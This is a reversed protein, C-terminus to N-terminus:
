SVDAARMIDIANRLNHGTLIAMTMGAICSNTAEQQLSELFALKKLDGAPLASKILCAALALLGDKLVNGRNMGTAAMSVPVAVAARRLTDPDIITFSSFAKMAKLEHSLGAGFGAVIAGQFMSKLINGKTLAAHIGGSVAGQAAGVVMEAALIASSTVGAGAAPIFGALLGGTFYAAAAAVAAVCLHGFTNM